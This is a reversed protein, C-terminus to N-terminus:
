RRAARMTDPSSLYADIRSVGERITEPPALYSLVVVTREDEGYLYGPHVSLGQRELLDVAIQEDDRDGPPRTFVLPLHIGGRPEVWSVLGPHREALEALSGLMTDRRRRVQAVFRHTMRAGSDLLRAAIFQTIPSASLYLDNEIELRERADSVSDRPGSLVIWSVKLDPSALLKSVGNIRFTAADPSGSGQRLSGTSSRRDYRYESFVEDVILRVGREGCLRSIEGLVSEDVIAGTPNHPSILVLAATDTTMLSSIEDPDIQWESEFHLRYFRPDLGCRAAIEEFLPYGPCPLLVTDGPACLATFLHRYSESASATVIVSSPEVTRGNRGVFRAVAERLSPLGAPDPRYARRTPDHLFDTAAITIASAEPALGCEHFNTNILSLFGPRAEAERLAKGIRNETAPKGPRTEM